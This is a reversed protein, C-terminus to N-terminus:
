KAYTTTTGGLSLARTLGGSSLGLWRLGATWSRSASGFRLKDVDFVREGLWDGPDM